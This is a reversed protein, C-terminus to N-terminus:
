QSRILKFLRRSSNWFKDKIDYQMEPPMDSVVRNSDIGEVIYFNPIDIVYVKPRLKFEAKLDVIYPETKNAFRYTMSLFKYGNEETQKVFSNERLNDGDLVAQNIGTLDSQEVEVLEDEGKRIVLQCVELLEWEGQIGDAALQDFFVITKSTTLDDIDLSIIDGRRKISKKVIKQCISDDTAKNGVTLVQYEGNEDMKRIVLTFSRSEEQLFEIRGPKQSIYEIDCKYEEEFSSERVKTVPGVNVHKDFENNTLATRISEVLGEGEELKVTFGSLTQTRSTKYAVDRINEIDDDDYFFYSLKDALQERTAKTIFIGREKAFEEVFEKKAFRGLTQEIDYRSPYKFHKRNYNLIPKKDM